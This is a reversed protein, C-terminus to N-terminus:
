AHTQRPATTRRARGRRPRASPSFAPKRGRGAKILLGDLGDKEYQHLWVAVTEPERAKFLKTAAVEQVQCGEAVHLLAAARERVYPKPHRDRYSTLQQKQPASLSLTLAKPM